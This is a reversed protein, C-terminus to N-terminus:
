SKWAFTMAFANELIASFSPWIQGLMAYLILFGLPIMLSFGVSYINLQPAIRTVVGFAFSVLLLGVVVPLSVRIAALFVYPFFTLTDRLVGEGPLTGTPIRSFSTAVLEILALHAGSALALLIVFYNFFQSVLPVQAGYLPDIFEGFGLGMQLGAVHGIFLFGGIVFRFVLGMAIGVIVEAGGALLGEGSFPEIKPLPAHTAVVLSTLALALALLFRPPLWGDGFFPSAMLFASIRLFPYFAGVLLVLLPEYAFPM